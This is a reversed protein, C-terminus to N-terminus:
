PTRRIHFHHFIHNRNELSESCSWVTLLIHLYRIQDILLEPVLFKRNARLNEDVVM